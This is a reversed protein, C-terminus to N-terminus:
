QPCGAPATEPYGTLVCDDDVLLSCSSIGNYFDVCADVTGQDYFMCAPQYVATLFQDCPRITKSCGLSLAKQQFAQQLTACAQPQSVQVGNPEPHYRNDQGGGTTNPGSGGALMSDDDDGCAFFGLAVAATLCLSRAIM